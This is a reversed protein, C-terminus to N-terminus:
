CIANLKLLAPEVSKGAEASGGCARGPALARLAVLRNVAEEANGYQKLHLTTNVRASGVRIIATRCSTKAFHPSSVTEDHKMLDLFVQSCRERKNLSM